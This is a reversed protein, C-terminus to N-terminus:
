GERIRTVKKMGDQKLESFANICNKNAPGYGFSKNARKAEPLM